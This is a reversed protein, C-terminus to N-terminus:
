ILFVEYLVHLDDKILPPPHIREPISNKTPFVYTAFIARTFAVLFLQTEIDLQEWSLKLDDQGQITFSEDDCCHNETDKELLAMAMKMGCDDAPVFFSTDMVRGM